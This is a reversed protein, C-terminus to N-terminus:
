LQGGSGQFLRQELWKRIRRRLHYLEFVDLLNFHRALAGSCPLVRCTSTGNLLIPESPKRILHVWKEPGGSDFECGRVYNQINGQVFPKGKALPLLKRECLLPDNCKRFQKVTQCNTEPEDDARDFVM